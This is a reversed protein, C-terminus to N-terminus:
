LGFILFALNLHFFIATIAYRVCKWVKFDAYEMDWLGALLDMIFARTYYGAALGNVVVLFYIMFWIDFAVM